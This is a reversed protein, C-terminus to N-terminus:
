EAWKKIEDLLLKIGIVIQWYTATLAKSTAFTFIMLLLFAVPLPMFFGLAADIMRLFIVGAAVRFLVLTVPFEKDFFM